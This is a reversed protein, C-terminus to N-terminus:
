INITAFFMAFLGDVVIVMFISKVVAATTHQGLSEASARRRGAGELSAISASSL